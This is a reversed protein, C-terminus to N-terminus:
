TDRRNQPNTGDHLRDRGHFGHDKLHDQGASVTDRIINLGDRNRKMSPSKTCAASTAAMQSARAIVGPPRPPPPHTLGAVPSQVDYVVSTAACIRSSGTSFSSLSVFRFPALRNTSGTSVTQLHYTSPTYIAHLCLLIAGIRDCGCGRFEGANVDLSPDVGPRQPQGAAGMKRSGSLKRSTPARLRSMVVRTMRAVSDFLRRM